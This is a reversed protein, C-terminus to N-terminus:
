QVCAALPKVCVLCPRTTAHSSLKRGRGKDGGDGVCVCRTTSRSHSSPRPTPRCSCAPCATCAPTPSTNSRPPPLPAHSPMPAHIASARGRRCVCFPPLRGTRLRAAPAGECRCPSASSGCACRRTTAAASSAAARTSSPSRTSRAWTTTTSRRREFTLPPKSFARARPRRRAARVCPRQLSQGVSQLQPAAASQRVAAIFRQAARRLPGLTADVRGEWRCSTARRWTGSTCRRTRRSLPATRLPLGSPPSPPRRPGRSATRIPLVSPRRSAAPARSAPLARAPPRACSAPPASM